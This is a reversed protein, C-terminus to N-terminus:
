TLSFTVRPQAQLLLIETVVGHCCAMESTIVALGADLMEQPIRHVAVSHSHRLAQCSGQYAHEKSAPPPSPPHDYDQNM